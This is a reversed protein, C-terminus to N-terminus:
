SLIHLLNPLESLISPLLLVSCGKEKAQIHPKSNGTLFSDSNPPLAKIFFLGM